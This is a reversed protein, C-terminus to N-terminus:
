FIYGLSANVQDVGSEAENDFDQYEVKFVLPDIPRYDVGATLVNIETAPNATFGSPVEAQTNFSEYRVFPFLAQEGQQRRSFLDYAAEVYWGNQEEGVGAADTLELAENLEAVEDLQSFAALARAELGQWKWDAHVEAITTGVDLVEGGPTAIEQGSRGAYVSAGALSGPLMTPTSGDWGPSTM